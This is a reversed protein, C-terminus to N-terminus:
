DDAGADHGAMDAETRILWSLPVRRRGGHTLATLVLIKLDLWLSYNRVYAMDYYIWQHFDGSGRNTRCLQWIGTIGPRVSLRARRWPVCIQNERFPSPRPGVLSMHGLFVNILQPLEDINTKRLFVGIRTIRPDSDLKFQPGDVENNQYLERQRHHADSVMSRFKLCPFDGREGRRERRHAFFVPGPSTAKILIAMAAFLPALTVLAVGSVLLDFIRKVAFQVRKRRHVESVDRDVGGAESQNSLGAGHHNGVYDRDPQLRGAVVRRTVVTRAAVVTREALTSQSLFVDRQIQSERGIVSPGIISVGSEITAGPQVIVPAVFRCSSDIRCGDGILVGKQPQSWGRPLGREIAISVLREQLVLLGEESNLDYVDSAVPIDQTFLGAGILSQRVEPLSGLHRRSVARAPVLSCLFAAHDTEPWSMMAYLRHVRRICGNEDCDIQERFAGPSSGISLAHLAGRYMRSHRVMSDFEYDTAPWARPDVMLLYDAPEAAEVFQSFEAPAMVQIQLDSRRGLDVPGASGNAEPRVIIMKGCGVREAHAALEDILTGTGFPLSMLAQDPADPLGLWTDLVAMTLQSPATRIRPRGWTDQARVFPVKM